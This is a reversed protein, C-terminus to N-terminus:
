LKILQKIFALVTIGLMLVIYGFIFVFANEKSIEIQGWLSPDLILEQNTDSIKNWIIKGVFCLIMFFLFTLFFGLGVKANKETLLDENSSIYNEDQFETFITDNKLLDDIFLDLKKTIKLVLLILAPIAITLLIPVLFLNSNVDVRVYFLTLFGLGFFFFVLGFLLSSLSMPLVKHADNGLVRLEVLSNLKQSISSKGNGKLYYTKGNLSFSIIPAYFVHKSSSHVNSVTYNSLYKQYAVVRGVIARGKLKFYLFHFLMAMGILLIPVPVIALGLM